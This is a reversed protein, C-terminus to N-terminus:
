LLHRRAPSKRTRAQCRRCTISEQAHTLNRTPHKHPLLVRCPGSGGEWDKCPFRSTVWDTRPVRAVIVTQYQMTDLHRWSREPTHDAIPCAQDCVPCHFRKIASTKHDIRVVVQDPNSEDTVIEVSKVHWPSQLGLLLGYHQNLDLM